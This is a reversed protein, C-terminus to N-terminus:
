ENIECNVGAIKAALTILLTAAWARFRYAALGKIEVKLTMQNTIKSIPISVSSSAM